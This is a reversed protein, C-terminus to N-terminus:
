VGLGVLFMLISLFAGAACVIIEIIGTVFFLRAESVGEKGAKAAFMTGLIAM